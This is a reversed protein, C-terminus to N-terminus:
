VEQDPPQGTYPNCIGTVPGGYSYALGLRNAPNDFGVFVGSYGPNLRWYFGGASWESPTMMQSDYQLYTPDGIAPIGGIHDYVFGFHGIHPYRPPNGPQIGAGAPASLLIFQIGSLQVGFGSQGSGSVPGTNGVVVRASPVVLHSWVQTLMALAELLVPAISQNNAMNLPASMSVESGEIQNAASLYPLGIIFTNPALDRADPM